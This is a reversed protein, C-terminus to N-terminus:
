ESVPAGSFMTQDDFLFVEVNSNVRYGRMAPFASKYAKEQPVAIVAEQEVSPAEFSYTQINEVYSNAESTDSYVDDKLDVTLDIVDAPPVSLGDSRRAEHTEFSSCASLTIIAAFLTFFAKM